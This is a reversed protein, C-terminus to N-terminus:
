YLDNQNKRIFSFLNERLEYFANSLYAEFMKFMHIDIVKGETLFLQFSRIPDKKEPPNRLYIMDHVFIILAIFELKVLSALDM